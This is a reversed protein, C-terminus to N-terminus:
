NIESFKKIGNSVTMGYFIKLSRISLIYNYFEENKMSDNQVTLGSSSKFSMGCPPNTVVLNVRKVFSVKEFEATLDFEDETVEREGSKEFLDALEDEDFETLVVDFDSGQLNIPIRSEALKTLSM